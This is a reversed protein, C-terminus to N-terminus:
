WAIEKLKLEFNVCHQTEPIIIFTWKHTSHVTVIDRLLFALDPFVETFSIGSLSHHTIAIVRSTKPSGLSKYLKSSM